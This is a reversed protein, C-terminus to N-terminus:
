LVASDTEPWYGVYSDFRSSIRTKQLNTVTFGTQTRRSVIDENDTVWDEM